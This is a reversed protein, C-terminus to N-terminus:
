SGPEIVEFSGDDFVMVGGGSLWRRGARPGSLVAAKARIEADTATGALATVQVVGTFAPRGSCPDLLHHAPHGHADLWSRKGIGSTALGGRRLRFRHLVGDEFPSQVEVTRPTGARGGIRLDGGCDVAYSEAGCLVDGLLDAFMGKAIGGSDLRLGPPRTIRAREVDVALTEWRREPCGHAPKRPPADSLAQALSISTEHSECYGAHELKSLLTGDVLGDSLSGARAVEVALRAMLPSVAVTPAPDENLRCLASHPDFRTFARHWRLLCRKSSAVAREPDGAGSDGMVWVGCLTGFCTFQESAESSM